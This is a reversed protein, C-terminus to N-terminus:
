LPRNCGALTDKNIAFAGSGLRVVLAKARTVAGVGAGGFNGDIMQFPKPSPIFYDAPAAVNDLQRDNSIKPSSFAIVLPLSRVLKSKSLDGEHHVKVPM